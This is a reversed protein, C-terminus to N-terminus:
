ADALPACETTSIFKDVERLFEMDHRNVARRKFLLAHARVLVHYNQLLRIGLQGLDTAKADSLRRTEKTFAASMSVSIGRKVRRAKPMKRAPQVRPAHEGTEISDKIEAILEHGYQYCFPLMRSMFGMEKWRNRQDKFTSFPLCAIIGICRDIFETEKGAFAVLGREDQTYQNLIVILLNVAPQSMARIASLDNFLLYETDPHSSVEKMISRGTIVGVRCVHKADAASVITTKGSEPAAMLLLSARKFGKV